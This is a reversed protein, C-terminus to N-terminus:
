CQSGIRKKRTNECERNPEECPPRPLYSMGPYQYWPTSLCHKMTHCRYQALLAIELGPPQLAFSRGISM